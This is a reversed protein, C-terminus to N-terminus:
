AAFGTLDQMTQKLEARRTAASNEDLLTGVGGPQNEAEDAIRQLIARQEALFGRLTQM